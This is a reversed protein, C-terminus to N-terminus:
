ESKGNTQFLSATVMETRAEGDVKVKVKVVGGSEGEIEGGGKAIRSNTSPSIKPAVKHQISPTGKEGLIM